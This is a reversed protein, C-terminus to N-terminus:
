GQFHHHHHRGSGGGTGTGTGPGTGTGTSGTSGTSGTGTTTGGSGGFTVSFSTGGTLASPTAEAANSNSVLTLVVPNDNGIAQGNVTAGTFNVTGFDALPLVAQSSPAEAIIEASSLEAGPVTQNTVKQWNQTTDTLTLTFSEGGTAVVSASMQDGPRVPENYFVPAAPFIEYWGSYEATGGSCDAETGTQELTPTNVGDLGVWFSSFTDASNCTVTPQTWSSAVSTFTGAAGTASYGAWNMTTAAAAETTNPMMTHGGRGYGPHATQDAAAAGAWARSWASDTAAVSTPAAAFHVAAVAAGCAALVALSVPWTWVSRTRRGYRSGRQRFM